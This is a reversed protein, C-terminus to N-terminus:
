GNWRQWYLLHAPHTRAGMNLRQAIWALDLSTSNLSDGGIRHLDRARAFSQRKQAEQAKEHGVAKEPNLDGAHSYWGKRSVPRASFGRPIAHASDDLFVEAPNAPTNTAIAEWNKLDLSRGIPL